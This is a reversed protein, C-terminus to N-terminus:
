ETDSHSRLDVGALLETTLQRYNYIEGNFVLAYRGDASMMPQHGAASTDIIALRRHGLGFNGAIFEGADDPGRHQMSDRATILRQKDVAQGTQKHWIGIIGCM